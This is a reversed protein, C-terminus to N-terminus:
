NRTPIHIADTITVIINTYNIEVTAGTVVAIKGSQDPIQSGDWKVRKMKNNRRAKGKLISCRVGFVSNRVAIKEFRMMRCELDNNM